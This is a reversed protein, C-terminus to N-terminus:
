EDSYSTWDECQVVEELEAVRGEFYIEDLRRANYMLWARQDSDHSTAHRHPVDPGEGDLNVHLTANCSGYVGSFQLIDDLQKHFRDSALVMDDLCVSLVNPEDRLRANIWAHPFELYECRIMEAMLGTVIPVRNLYQWYMEGQKPMTLEHNWLLHTGEPTPHKPIATKTWSESGAKHYLYGSVIMQYPNRVFLVYKHDPEVPGAFHQDYAYLDSKTCLEIARRIHRMLVTGTKHNGGFVVATSDVASPWHLAWLVLACAILGFKPNM